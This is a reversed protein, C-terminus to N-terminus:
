DRKIKGGHKAAWTELLEVRAELAKFRAENPNNTITNELPREKPNTLYTYKDEQNVKCGVVLCIILIFWALKM